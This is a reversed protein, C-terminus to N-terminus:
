RLLAVIQDLLHRGRTAIRPVNEFIILEPPDDAWAELMLWVGRLTLRNLAQYKDTKSKGEALLGSFGKCPASLFVIHPREGGAARRIDAP